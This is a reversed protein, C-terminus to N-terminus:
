KAKSHLFPCLEMDPFAHHCSCSTAPWLLDTILFCLVALIKFGWPLGGILYVWGTGWCVCVCVCVCVWVGFIYNFCSKSKKILFFFGFFCGGGFFFFKITHNMPTIKIPIIHWWPLHSPREKFLKVAKWFLAVWWPSLEVSLPHWPSYISCSPHTHSPSPDVKRTGGGKKKVRKRYSNSSLNSQINTRHGGIRGEPHTSLTTWYYM